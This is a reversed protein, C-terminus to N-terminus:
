LTNHIKNMYKFQERTPYKGNKFDTLYLEVTGDQSKNHLKNMKEYVSSVDKLIEDEDPMLWLEVEQKTELDMIIATSYDTIHGKYLKKDYIYYKIKNTM